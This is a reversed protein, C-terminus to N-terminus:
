LCCFAKQALLLDQLRELPFSFLFRDLHSLPGVTEETAEIVDAQAGDGVERGAVRGAFHGLLVPLAAHHVTQQGDQTADAEPGHGLDASLRPGSLPDLAGVRVIQEHDPEAGQASEDLFSLFPLSWGASSHCAFLSL